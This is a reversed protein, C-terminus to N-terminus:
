GRINLVKKGKELFERIEKVGTPLFKNGEQIILEKSSKRAARETQEFKYV